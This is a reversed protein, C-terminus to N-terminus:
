TTPRRRRRCGPRSRRSTRRSGACGTSRRRSPRPARTRCASRWRRWSPRASAAGTSCRWCRTSGSPRIPRSGTPLLPQRGRAGGQQRRRARGAPAPERDPRRAPDDAAGVARRAHARAGGRLGQPLPGAAGRRLRQRHPRRVGLRRRLRAAPRGAARGAAGAPRPLLAAAPRRAIERLQAEILHFNDLLWEAAPSVDYGTTAQQGIYRHAERLIRINDRLRPFFATSGKPAFRAAHTEGLSRGHQAFREPGFIESRNPRELPGRAPDLIKGVAAPADPVLRLLETASM